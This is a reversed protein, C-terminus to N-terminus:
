QAPGIAARAAARAARVQAALERSADIAACVEEIPYNLAAALARVTSARGQSQGTVLRSVTGQTLPLDAQRLGRRRILDQLTPQM